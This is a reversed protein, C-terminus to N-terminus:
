WARGFDALLTSFTPLFLQLPDHVWSVVTADIFSEWKEDAAIIIRIIGKM